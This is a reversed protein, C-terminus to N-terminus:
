PIPQCPSPRRANCIFLCTHGIRLTIRAVGLRPRPTLLIYVLHTLFTIHSISYIKKNVVSSFILMMWKLATGKPLWVCSSINGNLTATSSSNM